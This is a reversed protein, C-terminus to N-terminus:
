SLIIQIIEMSSDLETKITQTLKEGMERIEEVRKEKM